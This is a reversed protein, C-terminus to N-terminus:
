AILVLCIEVTTKKVEGFLAEDTAQTVFEGCLRVKKVIYEPDAEERKKVKECGKISSSFIDNNRGRM